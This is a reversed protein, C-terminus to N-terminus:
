MREMAIIFLLYILLHNGRFPTAFPLIFGALSVSDKTKFFQTRSKLIIFFFCSQSKLKNSIYIFIDISQKTISLMRRMCPLIKVANRYLGYSNWIQTSSCKVQRKKACAYVNSWQAKASSLKDLAVEWNQIPSYESNLNKM